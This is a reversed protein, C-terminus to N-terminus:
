EVGSYVKVLTELAQTQREALDLQQRMTEAMIRREEKDGKIAEYLIFTLGISLVMAVGGKVIAEVLEIRM